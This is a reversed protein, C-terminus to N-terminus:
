RNALLKKELEAIYERTQSIAEPSVTVSTIGWTVLQELIKTLLLPKEEFFSTPIKYKHATKIIRELSWLVAENEETFERTVETNNPDIGLTLMSLDHADIAIGDIGAEIFKDLLIVNAPTEATMWIKFSPSRYLGADTILKKVAVLEEVTRVFPLVIWLNKLNMTDRVLKIADLEMHFVEPDHIYRFAGRFGLMPNTELAEYADGGQLHRYEHTTSDSFRYMVPRPSFAKCFAAINEALKEVYVQRKGEQIMHKPHITIDTMMGEARLLGIGDVHRKAVNDALQSEAIHVYVKTVTQIAPEELIEEQALSTIASNKYIEGTTGNVIIVTGDILKHTANRAGLITPIGLERSVTAAHITQGGQETIVAAAKKMAPIFEPDTQSAVLIDGHKIRDLDNITHIIRVPGSVIGPHASTGKLLLYKNQQDSGIISTKKAKATTTTIPHTKVLYITGKEIAWEVQQPFYYQHEVKKGLAALTRIHRDSIKQQKAKQESLKIEKNEIGKITLMHTQIAPKKVLIQLSNKEVEYYDPTVTEKSNRLGYIAEIVIKSTDNTVPDLTFMSGSAESAVMKQIVVAIGVTFHDHKQQHRYLLARTDFFSAWLEKIRLLLTAEGHVDTYDPATSSATEAIPSAQVAVLADRFLGSMHSYSKFIEKVLKESMVSELILKKCQDSVKELSASDNYDVVGLLHTIKTQLNNEKIFDFYAKTTIIFGSPVPFGARTMEGLHVAKDGVLRVDEKDADKFSVVYTNPLM